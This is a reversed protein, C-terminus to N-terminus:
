LLNVCSPSSIGKISSKHSLKGTQKNLEFFQIDNSKQNAVLAFDEYIGFNRPIDGRTSEYALWELKNDNIKFSVITNHGRNSGYVFQGSPHVHIDACSNWETFSEPKTPVTHTATLRGSNYTFATITFDLENILYARQGDPHFTFHRPGAGPKSKYSLDERKILRGNKVQFVDVVDRGLDPMFGYEGQADFKFCHPHSAKQRQPNVSGGEFRFIEQSAKITGDNNLDFAELYGAGYSAGVLLNEYVEVHCLRAETKVSSLEILELKHTDFKYSKVLAQAKKGKGVSLCSYVLGKHLCQFSPNENKGVISKETMLGSKEDLEYLHLGAQPGSGGGIFYKKSSVGQGLVSSGLALLAGSKLLNRRNM